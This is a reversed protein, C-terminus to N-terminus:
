GLSKNLCSKQVDVVLFFSGLYFLNTEFSMSESVGKYTFLVSPLFSTRNELVLGQLTNILKVFYIAFAFVNNLFQGIRLM